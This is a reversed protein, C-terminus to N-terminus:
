EHFIFNKNEWLDKTFNFGVEGWLGNRHYLHTPINLNMRDLIYCLSTNASHIESAGEIIKCWDFITYGPVPKMEVIPLDSDIQPTIQMQGMAGFYRNVLIYPKGPTLQNFLKNEAERDRNWYLSRFMKWDHGYIQYKSQMCTQLTRGMNESAYRYPLWIGYPTNTTMRSDYNIGIKSKDIFNIDPFNKQLSLYESNVPWLVSNGEEQLARIMPVLWIIDGLSAFQGVVYKKGIVARMEIKKRPSSGHVGFQDKLVKTPQMHGEFAFKEAVEVPAFKIGYKSELYPRYTRCIHHDEPHHIQIHPDTAVIEMLKKSRLSFGGNGVAMGDNYHWPAGIYDYQLWNNDWAMWNNIFGDHQFILVHSTDFLKYGQEIIFTSYAEKSHIEPHITRVSGFKIWKTCIDKAKLLREKNSDIGLLTVNPLDWYYFDDAIDPAENHNLSSDFGIHQCISEKLCWAGGARICANHDWNGTIQLVPKVVTEYTEKDICFNIGGVSKKWYAYDNESLIQHRESGNANKTICHFGTLLGPLKQYAELLKTVADPKIIADSDFNIVIDCGQSFLGDYGYILTNKIGSNERYHDQWNNKFCAEHLIDKTQKESGDDVLLIITDKPLEVRELSWLCQKLYESRNFCPILIGVKM